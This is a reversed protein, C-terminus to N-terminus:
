LQHIMLKQDGRIKYIFPKVSFLANFICLGLDYFFCVILVKNQSNQNSEDMEERNFTVDWYIAINLHFYTDSRTIKLFLIFFTAGTCCHPASSYSYQSM